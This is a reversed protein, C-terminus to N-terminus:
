TDNIDSLKNASKIIFEPLQFKDALLKFATFTNKEYGETNKKDLKMVLFSEYAFHYQGLLAADLLLKNKRHNRERTIKLEFRKEIKDILGQAIDNEKKSNEKDGSLRLSISYGSHFEPYNPYYNIAKKFLINSVDYESKLKNKLAIMQYYSSMLIRDPNGILGWKSSPLFDSYIIGEKTISYDSVQKIVDDMVLMVGNSLKHVIVVHGTSLVAEVPLPIEQFISLYASSRSQCNMQRELSNADVLRADSKYSYDRMIIKQVTHALQIVLDDQLSLFNNNKAFKLSDVLKPLELKAEAVSINNNTNKTSVKATTGFKDFIDIIERHDEEIAYDIAMKGDNDKIDTNANNALLEEVIGQLNRSSAVHLATLGSRTIVDINTGEKILYSAIHQHDWLLAEFLATHQHGTTLKNVDAGLKVLLKVVEFKNKRAAIMLPSFKNGDLQNIDLDAIVLSEITKTNGYLASFTLPTYNFSIKVKKIIELCNNLLTPDIKEGNEISIELSKEVENENMSCKKAYSVNSILLLLLLIYVDYHFISM